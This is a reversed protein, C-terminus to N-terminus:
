SARGEAKALADLLHEIMAAARDLSDLINEPNTVRTAVGAWGSIVAYLRLKNADTRIQHVLRVAEDTM